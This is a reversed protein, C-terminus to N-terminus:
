QFPNVEPGKTEEQAAFEHLKLFIDITGAEKGKYFLPVEGDYERTTFKLLQTLEYSGEAILDDKSKMSEKDYLKINM